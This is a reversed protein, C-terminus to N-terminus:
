RFREMRKRIAEATRYDEEELAMKLYVECEVETLLDVPKGNLIDKLRNQGKAEKPEESPLPFVPPVGMYNQCDEFYRRWASSKNLRIEKRHIRKITTSTDGNDIIVFIHSDSWGALTVYRNYGYVDMLDGIQWGLAEKRRKKAAITKFLDFLTYILVLSAIVLLVGEQKM